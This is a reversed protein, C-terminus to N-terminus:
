FLNKNILFLSKKIINSYIEVEIKKEPDNEFNQWKIIKELHVIVIIKRKNNCTQNLEKLAQGMQRMVGTSTGGIM